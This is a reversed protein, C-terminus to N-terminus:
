VKIRNLVKLVSEEQFPKLIFDKAGALIADRVMAEMGMASVMVITAKDDIEKIQKLASIGDLEPMTIDMTVIDPKLQQYKAVAVTGNEAEGIVEFGNKELMMKLTLRIFMADDVILVRKM